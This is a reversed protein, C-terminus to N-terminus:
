DFTEISHPLSIETSNSLSTPEMHQAQTITTPGSKTHSLNTSKSTSAETSHLPAQTVFQKGKNNLSCKEKLHGIIGCNFCLSHINEYDIQQWGNSVWISNVLPLTLDIDICVRAYRARTLHDTAYDVRIPNEATKAVEFLALKDYYEVPLKPFRIWVMMRNFPNMSPRFNPKWKTLMLYHDLVFWPGGLRAREYDETVSFRFLYVDKGLDIVELSGRLKWMVRVRQTIFSPRVSIGLCKGM